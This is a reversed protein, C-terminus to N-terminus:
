QSDNVIATFKGIEFLFSQLRLPVRALIWYEVRRRRSILIGDVTALLILLAPLTLKKTGYYSM